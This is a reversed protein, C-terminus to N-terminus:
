NIVRVADGIQLWDWVVQGQEPLVRICGSTDGRNEIAGVSDLPQAYEGSTLVPVTHFGVRAGTNEGRTFAVFHTMTSRHGGFTSSAHLDKDYVLFTGPDPLTIATTIVFEPLAVGSDCLWARQRDRDVVAAHPTLPCNPDLVAAAVTTSTPVPATTSTPPTTTTSTSVPTPVHAVSTDVPSTSEVVTTTVSSAAATTASASTPASSGGCQVVLAGAGIAALAWVVARYRPAM